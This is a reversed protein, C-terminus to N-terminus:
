RAAGAWAALVEAPSATGTIHLKRITVSAALNAAAAAEVPTAGAALTCALASIFTDGAGVTDIPPSVDLTPVHAIGGDHVVLCGRSAMTVFLPRGQQRQWEALGSLNGFDTLDSGALGLAAAAEVDNPKLAMGPYEGIRLRSDVVIMLRPHAAALEILAARVRPTIVGGTIYDAVILADLDPAATELHAILEDEAGPPYPEPQIFDVRADEQAQGHAELIVKGYMPTVCDERTVAHDLRVGARELADSLLAGRWDRGLITFADVRGAGLDAVNWAANAAGGPSYRERVIPRVFLPAERSIESRMM